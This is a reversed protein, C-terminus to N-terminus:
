TTFYAPLDPKTARLMTRRTGTVFQRHTLEIEALGQAAMVSLAWVLGLMGVVLRVINRTTV